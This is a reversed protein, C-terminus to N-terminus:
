NTGVIKGIPNTRSDEIITIVQANPTNAIDAPPLNFDNGVFLTKKMSRDTPWYINRFHFKGFDPSKDLEQLYQRPPYQGYFLYFIYPQAQASEIIVQDYNPVLSMVKPVTERFGPQWNGSDRYPIQILISDMLYISSAIGFAAIFIGFGWKGLKPLSHSVRWIGYGICMSYISFLTIGRGPQFWSWTLMAPIPTIAALLTLEKYKRWNRFLYIVGIAWFVFEFPYFMSNYPIVLVPEYPERVFLNHPSAYAFYRGLVNWGFYFASKLMSKDNREWLIFINTSKSRAFTEGRFALIVFPTLFTMLLVLSWLRIKKSVGTLLNRDTFVLGILFLPIVIKNSNYSYMSIMLCTISLPLFNIKRKAHLFLILGLLLFFLATMAEHNTRSFHVAWPEIAMMWSASLAVWDSGFLERTLLFLILIMLTGLLATPTRVGVENLGFIKITPIMLYVPTASKYEDFSKTFIPLSKGFEDKGTVLISYANYGLAAEDWNLSFPSVALGYLRLSGGIFIIPVLLVLTLRKM